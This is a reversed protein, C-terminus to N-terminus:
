ERMYKESGVIYRVLPRILSEYLYQKKTKSTTSKYICGGVYKYVMEKEEESMMGGTLKVNEYEILAKVANSHNNDRCDELKEFDGDTDSDIYSELLEFEDTMDFYYKDLWTYIFRAGTFNHIDFANMAIEDITHFYVESGNIDYPVSLLYNKEMNLNDLIKNSFNIMQLDTQIQLEPAYLTNQIFYDSNPIYDDSFFGFVTDAMAPGQNLATKIQPTIMPADYTKKCDTLNKDYCHYHFNFTKAKFARFFQTYAIMPEKYKEWKSNKLDDWFEPDTFIAKVVKKLDGGSSKFVSAVRKVYAASPNSKTLRMILKKSIYPATNQHSCIIEVTHRIDENPSLDAPVTKNLFTKEGFDHYEEVNVMPYYYSGDQAVRGFWGSYKLTWGTFVRSLEMIDNQTYSPVYNGDKIVPTGDINLLNVGLSFLQMIERAYNEDPLITTNGEVHAKKNGVYTLYVGMGPSLSIDYLLSTYNKYANKYLIDYYNALAEARRVFAGTSFSEVVIESLAYALRHRLQDKAHVAVDMWAGLFYKQSNFSGINRNFVIDNTIDLYEELTYNNEDPAFNIATTIMRRLYPQDAAPLSLQEELWAKVGIKKLHEVEEPTAGFTAKNLFRYAVSDNLEEPIYDNVTGGSGGGGGCGFLFLLIFFSVIRGM